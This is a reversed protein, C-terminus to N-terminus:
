GEAKYAAVVDDRSDILLLTGDKKDALLALLIGQVATVKYDPAKDYNDDPRMYLESCGIDHKYLWKHTLNRWRENRSTLCVVYWDDSTLTNIMEVIPLIPEDKNAAQQREVYDMDDRWGDRALTGDIDLILLKM